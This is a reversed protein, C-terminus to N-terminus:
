PTAPILSAHGSVCRWAGDKLVWVNTFRSKREFPKGDKDRGAETYDGIDVAVTGGGYVRVDISCAESITHQESGAKLAAIGEAKTFRHGSPEVYVFDPAWIRELIAPDNKLYATSWQTSLDRIGAKIAAEQAPSVAVATQGRAAPGSLAVLSVLALLLCARTISPSPRM